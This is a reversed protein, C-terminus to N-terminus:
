CISPLTDSRGILEGYVLGIILDGTAFVMDVSQM